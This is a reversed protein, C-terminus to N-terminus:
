LAPGGAALEAHSALEVLASTSRGQLYPVTVAEGGWEALVASEPLPVGSYDGGKAWIDPRIRRLVTAPTDEDFIVVADVCELAALVRARDAAPQLPRQPGKLRRVSADSNLCVVLCDGVARAAQLTAIHGAHLLDFCGGTAVVVGRRSRVGDLLQDLGGDATQSDASPRDAVEGGAVEGDAAEGDAAERGAAERDAAEGNASEPEPSEPEPSEPEPSELRYGAAAGAQVFRGAAAVGLAVAESPLVGDALGAAAAAAFCDGAGCTDGTGVQAPAILHPANDALCFMAGRSGLTVCVSGAQWQRALQQAGRRVAALSAGADMAVFGALEALNPTVLTSGPVPEAGRPHPDWVLPCNVAALAARVGPDATVGRGYDSVLVAAASALATLAREPLPGIPGPDGGRDLRAVPHEAVRLRTKVPTSGTWPVVVLELRGALLRRLQRGAEDTAVPAVLVVPRRGAVARVALLAALAAGGPRRREVPDHLVPVPAEPSLRASEAILDIDLMVDGVVVLPATVADAAM